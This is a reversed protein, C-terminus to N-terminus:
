RRKKRWLFILTFLSAYLFPVLVFNLLFTYKKATFFSKEDTIKSFGTKQFIGKEYLSWLEDEENLKLLEKIVFDLNGYDYKEGSIYGLLMPNLFYQDGVVFFSIDNFIGPNYYGYSSGKFEAALTIEREDYPTKENQLLLPDTIFLGQNENSPNEPVPFGKAQVIKNANESSLKIESAWFLTIGSSKKESTPVSLWFPNEVYVYGQDENRMLLTRCSSSRVISSSFGIGYSELLRLLKKNQSKTINWSNQINKEYPSVAFFARNGKELHNEIEEVDGDTLNSSGLVMLISKKDSSVKIQEKFSGNKELVNAEFGRFSLFGKLYSYNGEYEDKGGPLIDVYRKKGKILSTIKETVSYELSEASLIFPVIEVDGGSEVVISSFVDVYENKGNRNIQISDPVSGLSLLKETMNNKKPELISLFVNKKRAYEGLMEKIDKIEPSLRELEESVFYTINVKENSKELLNKTYSSISYKKQGTLDMRLFFRNGNAFLLILAALILFRRKKESKEKKMSLRKEKFVVNLFLLFISLVFFFMFDRTDLIGKKASNFHWLFSSAKFIKLLFAPIVINRLFLHSINFFIMFVASVLFSLSKIGVISQVALCLSISALTYLVIFFFGTFVCSIEVDSFFGVSLPVFFEPLLIIFFQPLVSFIKVCELHVDPFPLLKEYGSFNFLCLFPIVIVSAYSILSFFSELNSGSAGTFFPGALFFGAACFFNMALSSVYFLPNTLGYFIKKRYLAFLGEKM